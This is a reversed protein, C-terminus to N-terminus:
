LRQDIMGTGFQGDVTAAQQLVEQTGFYQFLSAEFALRKRVLRKIRHALDIGVEGFVIGGQRGFVRTAGEHLAGAAEHGAVHDGRVRDNVPEVDRRHHFTEDTGAQPFRLNEFIGVGKGTQHDIYHRLAGLLRPVEVGVFEDDAHHGLLGLGAAQEFVRRHDARARRFVEARHALHHPPLVAAPHFVQLEIGAVQLDELPPKRHVPHGTDFARDLAIGRNEGVRLLGSDNAAGLAGLLEVPPEGFGM